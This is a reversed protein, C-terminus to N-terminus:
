LTSEIIILLNLLGHIYVEEGYVAMLTTLTLALLTLGLIICIYKCGRATRYGDSFALCNGYYASRSGCHFTYDWQGGIIPRRPAGSCDGYKQSDIESNYTPWDNWITYNLGFNAPNTNFPAGPYYEQSCGRIGTYVAETVNALYYNCMSSRSGANYGSTYHGGCIAKRPLGNSCGYMIPDVSDHWTLEKRWFYPYYLKDNSDNLDRSGYQNATSDGGSASGPYYEQSCGRSTFVTGINTTFLRMYRATTRAPCCSRSGPHQDIAYTSKNLYIGGSVNRCPVQNVVYIGGYVKSDVNGNWIRDYYQNSNTNGM